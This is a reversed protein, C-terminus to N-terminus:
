KCTNTVLYEATFQDKNYSYYSEDALLPYHQGFYTNFIIRFSNVPTISNYLLAKAEPKVYYANLNSMRMSRTVTKGAPGHDGQILIVPTTKSNKIIQEVIGPIQRDIFDVNARYGSVPNETKHYEGNPGFIYPDHPVLLHVFVFKPSSMEPVKPLESLIYKTQLYHESYKVGNLNLWPILQPMDEFIRLASTDILMSEYENPGMSIVEWSFPNKNQALHIDEGLNFHDNNYNEFAITTYGISKLTQNVKSEQLTPFTVSDTLFNQLYDMNMSSTLSYQTIPFNSQSCKAIYFGMSELKQLFDVNDFDYDKKLVDSRTYSDLIIYYIDPRESQSVGTSQETKEAKQSALWEPIDHAASQVLSILILVASFITFFNEVIALNNYKRLIVWTLLGFILAALLVLYRHSIAEGNHNEITMYVHGYSFFLILALTTILRAKVGNKLILYLVALMIATGALALVISRWLSNISVYTINFNRLALIPYFAILFPYIHSIKKM